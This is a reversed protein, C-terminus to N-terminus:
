LQAADQDIAKFEADLDTDTLGQLEAEVTASSEDGTPTSTSTALDTTPAAAKNSSLMWWVLVVVAVIILLILLKKM